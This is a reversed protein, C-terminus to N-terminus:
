SSLGPSSVLQATTRIRSRFCTLMMNPGGELGRSSSFAQESKKPSSPLCMTQPPTVAVTATPALTQFPLNGGSNQNNGVDNVDDPAIYCGSLALMLGMLGALALIKKKQM